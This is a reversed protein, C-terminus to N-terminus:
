VAWGVVHRPLRFFRRRRPPASVDMVIKFSPLIANNVVKSLIVEAILYNSYHIAGKKNGFYYKAMNKGYFPLFPTIITNNIRCPLPRSKWNNLDKRNVSDIILGFHAFTLSAAAVPPQHHIPQRRFSTADSRAAIIRHKGERAAPM